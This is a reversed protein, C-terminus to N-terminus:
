GGGPLNVFYTQYQGEFNLFPSHIRFQSISHPEILVRISVEIGSFKWRNHLRRGMVEKDVMATTGVRAAAHASRGHGFQLLM